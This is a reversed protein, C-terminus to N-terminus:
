PATFGDALIPFAATDFEGCQNGQANVKTITEQAVTDTVQLTYEVDSLSGYFLWFGGGISTADIMKVVLEINAQDFFWFYGTQDSGTVKRGVGSTGAQEVAWDVEVEFRGGLLCLTDDDGCGGAETAEARVPNPFVLPASSAAPSEQRPIAATDFEGCRDFPANYYTKAVGTETDLVSIWYEVDTLAGHFVWFHDNLTTADLIKVILEVNAADFFWFTGSQDGEFAAATGTGFGGAPHPNNWHVTVRFREQLCLTQPSGGCPADPAQPTLSVVESPPSAAQSGLARIRFSHPVGTPLPELSWSTTDPPVTAVPAWAGSSPTRVEILFGTEDNSEDSWTLVAGTASTTDGAFSGPARPADPLTTAVAEASLPSGATGRRAQVRFAYETASQLGGVVTGTSNAGTTAVRVWTGGAAKAEVRFQTEDSSNDSWSLEVESSSLTTAALDSPAAPPPGGGNTNGPYLARAAARDDENIQAGRSDNHIFPYMLADHELDNAVDCSKGGDGCPHHFGLTHGLEHALLQELSKAVRDLFCQINKNTTIGAGVIRHYQKGNPGTHLPFSRYSPGGVALVGGTRCDFATDIEDSANDFRIVNLATNVTAGAFRYRINTGRAGNWAAIGARVAAATTAEGYGPQGGPAIHFDVDQGADFEFWRMNAGGNGEFLRYEATIREVGQVEDDALFYDADREVGRAADSVWRGFAEADRPGLLQAAPPNGPMEFAVAGSLDRLLVRRGGVVRERFAGLMLHVVAFTGDDGPALFLFLREGIAFRPIGYLEVGTGDPRTGGPLRVLLNRGSVEGAVVRQVEIMTDTAPWRGTVPAPEVALVRAEVVASAAELLAQDSVPVYTTAAAPPAALTLAVLALALAFLRSVAKM